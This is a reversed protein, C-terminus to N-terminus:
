NIKLKKTIKPSGASCGAGLFDLELDFFVSLLPVFFFFVLYPFIFLIYKKM